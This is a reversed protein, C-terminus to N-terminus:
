DMLTLLASVYGMSTKVTIGFMEISFIGFKGAMLRLPITSRHIIFILDKADKSSIDYWNCEYAAWAMNTSEVLLREACYCYMYLHMLVLIAYFFLFCMKIVSVNLNNTIITFVQFTEFCLQLTIALMHMLLVASYCDNITSANRILHEHRVVIAALGKKFESSPISEKALEDVLNKLAMRLNILQACIHLLLISIFSDITSMIMATYIGGFLQIFYTIEYNPSKQINYPYSFHYVLNRQPEHMSRYFKMLNLFLYFSVTCTSAMYCKISLSRGCRALNLMTNREHNKSTMWDTMISTMLIRLTKGHYWTCGLKCLAMLSFNASSLSEVMRIVNGWALIINTTQPIIVYFFLTCMVIIFRINPWRIDSLPVFPDPWVGFVRLCQYSLAFVYNLYNM